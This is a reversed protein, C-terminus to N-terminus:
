MSRDISPKRTISWLHHVETHVVINLNDQKKKLMVIKKFSVFHMKSFFYFFFVSWFQSWAGSWFLSWVRSWTKCCAEVFLRRRKSINCQRVIFHPCDHLPYVHYFAALLSTVYIQRYIAETYYEM